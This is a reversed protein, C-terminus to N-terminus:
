EIEGQDNNKKSAISGGGGRGSSWCEFKIQVIDDPNPVNQSHYQYLTAGDTLTPNIGDPDSISTVTATGGNKIPIYLQGMKKSIYSNNSSVPVYTTANPAVSAQTSFTVGNYTCMGWNVEYFDAYYTTGATLGTVTVSTSSQYITVNSSRAVETSYTSDTYVIVCGTESAFQNTLFFTASNSTSSEFSIETNIGAAM